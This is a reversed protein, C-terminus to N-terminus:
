PLDKQLFPCLEAWGVIPAATAGGIDRPGCKLIGHKWSGPVGLDGRTGACGLRRQM